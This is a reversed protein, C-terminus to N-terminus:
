YQRGIPFNRRRYGRTKRRPAPQNFICIPFDMKASSSATQDHHSKQHVMIPFCYWPFCDRSVLHHISSLRDTAVAARVVVATLMLCIMSLPIKRRYEVHRAGTNSVMQATGSKEGGSNHDASRVSVKCGRAFGYFHEILTPFLLVFTAPRWLEDGFWGHGSISVLFGVFVTMVDAAM